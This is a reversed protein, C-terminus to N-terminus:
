PLRTVGRCRDRRGPAFPSPPLQGGRAKRLAFAAIDTGGICAGFEVPRSYGISTELTVKSLNIGPARLAGTAAGPVAAREAEGGSGGGGDSAM